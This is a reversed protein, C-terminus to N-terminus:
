LASCTRAGSCANTTSVAIMPSNVAPHAALRRRAKGASSPSEPTLHDRPFQLETDRYPLAGTRESLQFYNKPRVPRPARGWARSRRQQHYAHHPARHPGTGERAMTREM